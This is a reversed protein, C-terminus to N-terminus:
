SAGIMRLAEDRLAVKDFKGNPLTPLTERIVFRKPVKFNALQARCHEAIERETL